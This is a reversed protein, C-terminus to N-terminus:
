LEYILGKYKFGIKKSLWAYVPYAFVGLVAGNLTGVIPLGVVIPVILILGFDGSTSM